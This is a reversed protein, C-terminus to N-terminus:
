QLVHLLIAYIATLVIMLAGIVGVVIRYGKPGFNDLVWHLFGFPRGGRSELVWKWDFIAGLVILLGMGTVLLYWYQKFLIELQQFM